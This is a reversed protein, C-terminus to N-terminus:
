SEETRMNGLILERLKQSGAKDVGDIHAFSGSQETPTSIHVDYLGFLVDLLDQDVYVDTIRSYLLTIEKCAAIGKRIVIANDRADYFYRKYYFFEYIGQGILLSVTLLMWKLAFYSHKMFQELNEWQHTQKAQMAVGIASIVMMLILSLVAIFVVGAVWKKIWKTRRLPISERLTM